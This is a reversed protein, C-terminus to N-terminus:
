PEALGCSFVREHGSTIGEQDGEALRSRAPIAAAGSKGRGPAKRM